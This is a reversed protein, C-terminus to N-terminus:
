FKRKRENPDTLNPIYNSTDRFDIIWKNDPTTPHPARVTLLKYHFNTLDYGEILLPEKCYPITIKTSDTEKIYKMNVLQKPIQLHRKTHLTHTTLMQIPTKMTETIQASLINDAQGIMYKLIETALNKRVLGHLKAPTSAIGIINIHSSSVKKNGNQEFLLSHMYKLNEPWEKLPHDVLKQPNIANSACEEWLKRERDKISLLEKPFAKLRPTLQEIISNYYGLEQKIFFNLYTKNNESIVIEFNRRSIQTKFQPRKSSNKTHTYQTRM